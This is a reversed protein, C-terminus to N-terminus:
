QILEIFYAKFFCFIYIYKIADYTDVLTKFILKIFTSKIIDPEINGGDDELYDYGSFDAGIENIEKGEILNILYDLDENWEIVARKVQMNGIIDFFKNNWKGWRIYVDCFAYNKLFIDIKVEKEEKFTKNIEAIFESSKRFKM